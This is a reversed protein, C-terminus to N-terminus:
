AAGQTKEHLRQRREVMPRVFRDRAMESTSDYEDLDAVENVAEKEEPTVRVYLQETRATEQPM